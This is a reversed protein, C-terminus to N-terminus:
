RSPSRKGLEAEVEERIAFARGADIGLDGALEALAREEDRSVRGDALFRKLMRRYSEERREPPVGPAPGSDPVARAALRDAMRHLPSIVFLLAGAAVIGLIAPNLEAGAFRNEIFWRTLETVIFFAALFAGGLISKSVGWRVKYDVGLFQHRLIAYTLLLVMFIRALSYVPFAVRAAAVVLGFLVAALCLLGVNRAARGGSQAMSLWLLAILLVASFRTVAVALRLGEGVLVSDLFEGHLGRGAQVGAFSALSAAMIAIQTRSAPDRALRFRLTLFYLYVLLASGGIVLGWSFLPPAGTPELVYAFIGAVILLGWLALAPAVLLREHRALPAPFVVALFGLAIVWGVLLPTSAWAMVSPSFHLMSTLALVTFFGGFLLTFGAFAVNSRSRPRLSLMFISLAWLALGSGMGAVPAWFDEHV